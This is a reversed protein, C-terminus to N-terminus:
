SVKKMRRGIDARVGECRAISAAATSAYESVSFGALARSCIEMLDWHRAIQYAPTLKRECADSATAAMCSTLYILNDELRGVKNALDLLDIHIGSLRIDSQVDARGVAARLDDAISM